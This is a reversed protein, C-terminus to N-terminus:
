PYRIDTNRPIFYKVPWNVVWGTLPAFQSTLWHDLWLQWTGARTAHISTTEHIHTRRYQSPQHHGGRGGGGQRWGNLTKGVHRSKEKNDRYLCHYTVGSWPGSWSCTRLQGLTMDDSPISVGEQRPRAPSEGGGRGRGRKSLERRRRFESVKRFRARGAGHRTPVKISIRGTTAKIHQARTGASLLRPVEVTAISWCPPLSGLSDIWIHVLRIGIENKLNTRDSPWSEFNRPNTCHFFEQLKRSGREREKQRTRAKSNPRRRSACSGQNARDRCLLRLSEM